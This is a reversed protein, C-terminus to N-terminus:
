RRIKSALLIMVSILVLGLLIFILYSGANNIQGTMNATKNQMGYAYDSYTCNALTGNEDFVCGHTNAAYLEGVAFVGVFLCVIFLILISFTNLVNSM